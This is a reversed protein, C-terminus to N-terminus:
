MYLLLVCLVIYCLISYYLVICSLIIYCLVTCYLVVYCLMVHFLIVCYLVCSILEKFLLSPIYGEIVYLVITISKYKNM